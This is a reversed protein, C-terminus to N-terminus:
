RLPHALCNTCVSIKRNNAYSCTSAILERETQAIRSKPDVDGLVTAAFYANGASSPHLYKKGGVAMQAGAEHAEFIFNELLDFRDSTLMSGCDVTNIYGERSPALVSGVRLKKVRETLTEYLEDFQESHVILREIGICNQGANQSFFTLHHDVNCLRDFECFVVCGSM